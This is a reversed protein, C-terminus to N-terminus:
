IYKDKIIIYNITLITFDILYYFYFYFFLLKILVISYKSIRLYFIFLNIKSNNNFAIVNIRCIPCKKNLDIWQKLCYNHLIINCNCINNYLQQNKLYIPYENYSSKIEYCIYCKENYLISHTKNIYKNSYYDYYHQCIYFFM